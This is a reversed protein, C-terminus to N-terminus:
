FQVGGIDGLVTMPRDCRDGESLSLGTSVIAKGYEYVKAGEHGSNRYPSGARAIELELASDSEDFYTKTLTLLTVNKHTCEHNAM